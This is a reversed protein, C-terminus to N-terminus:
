RDEAVGGPQGLPEISDNPVHDGLTAADPSMSAPAGAGFFAGMWEGAAAATQARVLSDVAPQAPEPAAPADARRSRRQPLLPPVAGGAPRLVAPAEALAPPAEVLVAPLDAPWADDSAPVDPTAIGEVLEAPVMVVARLGGYVSEMLEIRFGHRRAYTGVVALGTQPISGLDAITVVRTGSAIERIRELQQHDLGVGCDDIEIVAGRQVHRLVVLVQTGPPSSQTANALLEALLHMLPEVARAAVAVGPDGSTEVRHFATIRGAAGKVVDPLPLPESWQQGPAHGCLTALGQAQRAHQAAAHDVRMSTQLVDPDTPHRQVMRAAEEQIRHASAQVKRALAVVAVEVAERRSARDVRVHELAAAAEDLRARAAMPLSPLPPAPEDALFAPLQELVVADLARTAAEAREALHNCQAQLRRTAKRDAAEVRHAVVAAVLAILVVLGGATWGAGTVGGVPPTLTLSLGVYAAMVAACLWPVVQRLVASGASYTSSM